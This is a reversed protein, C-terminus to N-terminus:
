LGHIAICSIVTYEGDISTTLSIFVLARGHFSLPLLNHCCAHVGTYMWGNMILHKSLQQWTGTAASLNQLSLAFHFLCLNWRGPAQPRHAM